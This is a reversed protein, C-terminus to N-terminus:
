LIRQLARLADGAEDLREDLEPEYNVGATFLPDVQERDLAIAVPGTPSEIILAYGNGCITIMPEM